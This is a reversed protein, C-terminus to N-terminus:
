VKDKSFTTADFGSSQSLTESTESMLTHGQLILGVMVMGGPLIAMFSGVISGLTGLRGITVCKLQEKEANGGKDNVLRYQDLTKQTGAGKRDAKSLQFHRALM